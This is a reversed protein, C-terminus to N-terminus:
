RNQLAEVFFPLPLRLPPWDELFLHEILVCGEDFEVCYANGSATDCPEGRLAANARALLNEAYQPSVEERLFQEFRQRDQDSMPDQSPPM